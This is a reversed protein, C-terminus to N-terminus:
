QHRGPSLILNGEEERREWLATQFQRQPIDGACKLNQFLSDKTGNRCLAQWQGRKGQVVRPNHRRAERDVIVRVAACPKGEDEVVLNVM